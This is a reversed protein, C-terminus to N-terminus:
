EFVYIYNIGWYGLFVVQSCDHGYVTYPKLDADTGATVQVKGDAIKKVKVIKNSVAKYIETIYKGSSNAATTYKISNIPQTTLTANGDKASYVFGSAIRCPAVKVNTHESPSITYFANNIKKLAVPNGYEKVDAALVSDIQAGAITGNNEGFFGKGTGSIVGNADYLVILGNLMVKDQVRSNISYAIIDGPELDITKGTEFVPINKILASNETYFTAETTGRLGDIRYRTVMKERDFEELINSVVFYGNINTFSYNVVDEAPYVLYDTVMNKTDTGYGIVKYSGDHVFLDSANCLAFDETNKTNKDNVVFIKCEKTPVIIGTFEGAGGYTIEKDLANKTIYLRDGEVDEIPYGEM